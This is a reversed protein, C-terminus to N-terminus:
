DYTLRQHLHLLVATSTACSGQIISISHVGRSLFYCTVSRALESRDISPQRRVVVPLHFDARHNECASAVNLNSAVYVPIMSMLMRCLQCYRVNSSPIEVPGLM